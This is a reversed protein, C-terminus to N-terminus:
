SRGHREMAKTVRARIQDLTERPTKDTVEVKETLFGQLKAALEIARLKDQAKLKHLPLSGADANPGPMSTTEISHTLMSGADLKGIPTIVANTLFALMEAQTLAAGIIRAVADATQAAKKEILRETADEELKGARAKLEAIRAPVKGRRAVKSGGEHATKGESGYVERHAESPSKGRAVLVAFKEHRPNDLAAM